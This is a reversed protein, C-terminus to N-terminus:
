LKKQFNLWLNIHQSLNSLNTVVTLNQFLVSVMDLGHKCHLFLDGATNCAVRAVQSRLNKIHKALSFCVQHMQHEIVEPTQRAVRALGQLGSVTTEWNPNDLENLAHQLM